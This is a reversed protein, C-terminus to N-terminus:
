RPAAGDVEHVTSYTDGIALDYVKGEPAHVVAGHIHDGAAPTYSYRYTSGDGLTQKVLMGNAYENRLVVKAASRADVAVSFSLQTSDYEYSYVEGSPYTVRVLRGREDYAYRVTRGRSDDMRAVRGGDGYTLHLWSGNPSTLATLKREGDREFKLEQGQADRIGILYCLQVASYCPLFTRVEGDFKKLDYHPFPITQWRMEYYKGSYDTDVYKARALDSEGRPVRVLGEDGGGAYNVNITINDRSSLFQDYNHSGSIGFANRGSWGDRLSRQLEIPIADPLNFDTHKDILLGGLRLDVEFIETAEDHEPIDKDSCTRILRGPLPEIGGASTYRFFLCPEGENQGWRTRAPDLDSEYIADAPIDPDLPQGLLSTPDNNLPLHWSLIAVDKLLIRWLRMRLHQDSDHRGAELREWRTDQMGDSSLIARRGDRETFTSRWSKQVTYMDVGTFGILTAGQDDTLEPHKRKMQDCLLEAVYQSRSHDLANPDLGMPPLVQVDLGYQQRLRQAFEDLSYPETSHGLQVLYIRGSGKLEDGRATPGKHRLTALHALHRRYTIHESVAMIGVRILLGLLVYGVTM